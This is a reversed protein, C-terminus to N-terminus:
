AVIIGTSVEGIVFSVGTVAILMLNMPERLQALAIEWISPPPEGTIENPGHQALRQGAEAAALGNQADSGAAAVVAAGEQAFPETAPPSALETMAQVAGPRRRHPAGIRAAAIM